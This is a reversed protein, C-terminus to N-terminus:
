HLGLRRHEREYRESSFRGSCLARDRMEFRAGSQFLMTANLESLCVECAKIKEITGCAVYGISGVMEALYNCYSKRNAKVNVAKTVLADIRKDIIKIIEETTKSNKM